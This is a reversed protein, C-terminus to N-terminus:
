SVTITFTVALTDGIQLSRQTFALVHHMTGAAGASFLAAKQAAQPATACTFTKGITSTTTAATHSFSGVARSLGNAVIENTLTTSTATETVTDNSLAIYTLGSAQAAQSYSQTHNFDIGGNTKVNRVVQRNLLRGTTDRHEIVGVAREVRISEDLRVGFLAGVALSAALGLRDLLSM